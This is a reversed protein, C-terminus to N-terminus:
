KSVRFEVGGDATECIAVLRKGAYDADVFKLDGCAKQIGPVASLSLAFIFWAVVTFSAVIRFLIRQIRDDTDRTAYYAAGCAFSTVVAFTLFGSELSTM